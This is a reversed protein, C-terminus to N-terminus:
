FKQSCSGPLQTKFSSGSKGAYHLKLVAAQGGQRVQKKVKLTWIDMAGKKSMGWSVADKLKVKKVQFAQERCKGM